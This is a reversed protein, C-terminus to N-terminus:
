HGIRELAGKIMQYHMVILFFCIGKIYVTERVLFFICQIHFPNNSLALQLMTSTSEDNLQCILHMEFHM